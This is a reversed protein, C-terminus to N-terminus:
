ATEYKLGHKNLIKNLNNCQKQCSEEDIRNLTFELNTIQSSNINEKLYNLQDNINIKPTIERNEVSM